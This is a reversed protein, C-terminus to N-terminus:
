FAFKLAFQFVRPQYNASTATLAGFTASGLSANPTAFNTTNTINFAEARFEAHLNERIPITKILSLDVHRFHPGYAVNRAESGLAGAAQKQFAEKNIYTAIGRQASPLMPAGVLNPRDSTAIGYAQGSANSSNTV